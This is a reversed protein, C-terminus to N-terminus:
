STLILINGISDIITNQKTKFYKIKDNEDKMILNSNLGVDIPDIIEEYLKIKDLYENKTLTIEDKQNLKPLEYYSKECSVLIITLIILTLISLTKKM